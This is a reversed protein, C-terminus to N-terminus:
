LKSRSQLLECSNSSFIHNLSNKKGLFTKLTAIWRVFDNTLLLTVPRIAFWRVFCEPKLDTLDKCFVILANGTDGVKEM